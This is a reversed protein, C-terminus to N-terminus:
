YAEAIGVSSTMPKIQMHEEFILDYILPVNM